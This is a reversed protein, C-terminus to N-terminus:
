RPGNARSHHRRLDEVQKIFREKDRPSILISKGTGYDIQLRDLSLAPGSLPNRTPTVSTIDSVPVRWKFPGCRITLRDPQLIYRTGFLLWIPLVIGLVATFLLLWWTAPRASLVEASAHISMAMAGLLVVLLWADIKSNYVTATM